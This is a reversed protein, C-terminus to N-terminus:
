SSSAPHKLDEAESRSCPAASSCSCWCRMRRRRARIRFTWISRARSARRRREAGGPEHGVGDGNDDLLARETALQGRAAPLLPQVAASAAAFAEWISMRGNKDIDRPRTRRLRQHLVRSLRHRLAAGRHRDRHDRHAAAGALQECSRFARATTNVFVVRGPLRRAAGAWEATWTPGSSISSPTPATSRATASSCSSSCIARTM